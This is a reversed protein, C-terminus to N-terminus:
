KIISLLRGIEKIECEVRDGAKLYKPPNFGMGVGAPTGTIIIDGPELTIGKSFDEIIAPINHILMNTNGNQRIEGNVRSVVDVEIPFPLNSKHLICPGMISYLDLSKGKYWQTHDKQLARASLDNFVSYGFIYDEADEKKIDRGKKGIVIALEAEYDVKEDLSFFGEVNQGSGAIVTARKSFYVPKQVKDLNSSDLVVKSEKLHDEYNVGLCIIDHLPKPIPSLLELENLKLNSDLGAEIKQEIEELEVKSVRSIFDNMDKFEKNAVVENIIFAGQEKKDMFGIEVKDEYKFSIFKM